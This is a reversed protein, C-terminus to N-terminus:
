ARMRGSGPETHSPRQRVAAFALHPTVQLSWPRLGVGPASPGWPEPMQTYQPVQDWVTGAGSACGRVRGRTTDHTNPFQPIQGSRVSLSPLSAPQGPTAPRFDAPPVNVTRAAVGTVEGVSLGTHMNRALREITKDRRAAAM